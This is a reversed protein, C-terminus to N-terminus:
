GTAGTTGEQAVRLNDIVFSVGPVGRALEEARRRAEASAVTGALTVEGDVAHIQVQAAEAGLEQELRRTLEDQIRRDESGAM